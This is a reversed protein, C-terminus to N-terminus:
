LFFREWRGTKGHFVLLRLADKGANTLREALAAFREAQSQIFDFPVRMDALMIKLCQLKSIEIM